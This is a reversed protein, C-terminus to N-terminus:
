SFYVEPCPRDHDGRYFLSAASYVSIGQVFIGTTIALFGVSVPHNFTAVLSILWAIFYHHLHLKAPGEANSETHIVIYSLIVTFFLVVRSFAYAVLDKHSTFFQRAYVLHWGFMTLLVTALSSMTILFTTSYDSDETVAEDIAPICSILSYVAGSSLFILFFWKNRTIYLWRQPVDLLDVFWCQIFGFMCLSTINRAHGLSTHSQADPPLGLFAVFRNVGYGLILMIMWGAASIYKKYYVVDTVDTFHNNRGSADPSLRGDLTSVDSPTMFSMHEERASM